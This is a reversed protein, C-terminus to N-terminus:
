PKNTISALLEISSPLLAKFARNLEALARNRAAKRLLAPDPAKNFRQHEFFDLGPGAPPLIPLRLDMLGSKEVVMDVPYLGDILRCVIGAETEAVPAALLDVEPRKIITLKTNTLNFM